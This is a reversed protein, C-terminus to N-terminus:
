DRRQRDNVILWLTALPLSLFLMPLVLDRAGLYLLGMAAVGVVLVFVLPPAFATLTGSRADGGQAPRQESDTDQGQLNRLKASDEQQM